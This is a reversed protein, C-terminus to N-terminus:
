RARLRLARAQPERGNSGASRRPAQTSRACRAVVCRSRRCAGQRGCGHPRSGRPPRAQTSRAPLYGGRAKSQPDESYQGAVRAFNAGHQTTVQRLLREAEQRKQQAVMPLATEPVRVLIHQFLRVSGEHFASDAEPQSLRGRAATLRDHYHEWKLQAVVPWQAAVVLASDHLDRSRGLDAAFVAYDLYISAVGSVVEPTVPYRQAHGVVSALRQVSLTEGAATGAVQPHASFADRLVGCGALALVTVIAALPRM